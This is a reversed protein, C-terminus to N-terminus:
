GERGGFVPERGVGARRRFDNLGCLPGAGKRQGAGRGRESPQEGHHDLGLFSKQVFSDTLSVSRYSTPM